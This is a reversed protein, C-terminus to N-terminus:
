QNLRESLNASPVKFTYPVYVTKTGNVFLEGTNSEKEFRNWEVESTLQRARQLLRLNKQATAPTQLCINLEAVDQPSRSHLFKTFEPHLSNIGNANTIINAQAVRQAEFFEADGRYVVTLRAVEGMMRMLSVKSKNYPFNYPTTLDKVEAASNAFVTISDTRTDVWGSREAMKAADNMLTANGMLDDFDKTSLARRASVSAARPAAQAVPAAPAIPVQVIPSAERLVEPQQAHLAVSAARVELTEVQTSIAVVSQMVSESHNVLTKVQNDVSTVLQTNTASVEGFKRALETQENILRALNNEIQAMRQNETSAKANRVTIETGQKARVEELSIYAQEVRGTLNELRTNISTLAATNNQVDAKLGTMFDMVEQMTVASTVQDGQAFQSALDPPIAIESAIGGAGDLFTVSSIIYGMPPFDVTVTGASTNILLEYAMRVRPNYQLLGELTTGFHSVTLHIPQGQVRVICPGNARFLADAVKHRLLAYAESM